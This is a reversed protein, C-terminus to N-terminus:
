KPLATKGPLDSQDAGQFTMRRMSFTFSLTTRVAVPKGDKAGPAFKTKKAAEAPQKDLECHAM